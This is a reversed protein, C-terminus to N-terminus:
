NRCQSRSWKKEGYKPEPELEMKLGINRTQFTNYQLLLLLFFYTEVTTSIRYFKKFLYNRSWSRIEFYNQSWVGVGAGYCQSTTAADLEDMNNTTFFFRASCKKLNLSSM